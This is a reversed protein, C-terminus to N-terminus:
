SSTPTNTADKHLLAGGTSAVESADSREENICNNAVARSAFRLMFALRLAQLARLDAADDFLVAVFFTTADKSGSRPLSINSACAISTTALSQAFWTFFICDMSATNTTLGDNVWARDFSPFFAAHSTRSDIKM